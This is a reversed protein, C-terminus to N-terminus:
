GNGAGDQAAPRVSSLRHILAPLHTSGTKEKIRRLHTYVTNPSISRARAYATPSMGAQLALALNAEAETLDFVDRLMRAAQAQDALPDRVFVIAAATMAEQSRSAKAMLPRVSVVYGPLGSPREVIFDATMPAPSAKISLAGALAASLRDRAEPTAPEIQGRRIRLGDGRQTIAELAANIHVVRGGRDVLAVGEALVNLSQEFVDRAALATKLRTAMDYSRSLHPLLRRMQEDHISDVHGQRRTRQITIIGQAKATNLIQGSLFYRLGSPALYKTYYADRDMAQEDIIQYDCLTAESLHQVAYAVRPNDKAYHGLYALESGPPLRAMHFDIINWTRKQFIELTAGAAKFFDSIAGLAKVWQGGDLGAAYVEEVVGTLQDDIAM